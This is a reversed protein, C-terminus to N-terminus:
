QCKKNARVIADPLGRVQSDGLFYLRAVADFGFEHILETACAVNPQYSVRTSKPLGQEVLVADAIYQTVGENLAHYNVVLVKSSYSHIAEHLAEGFHATRPVHISDSGDRDYFGGISTDRDDASISAEKKAKAFAAADDVNFKTPLRLNRGRKGSIYPALLRSAEIMTQLLTALRLQGSPDAPVTDETGVRARRAASLGAASLQGRAQGIFHQKDAINQRTEEIFEWQARISALKAEVSQNAADVSDNIVRDRVSKWAALSSSLNDFPGHEQALSQQEARLENALDETKLFERETTALHKRADSLAGPLRKRDEALDAKLKILRPDEKVFFPDDREFLEEMIPELRAAMERNNNAIDDLVDQRALASELPEDPEKAQRRPVPPGNEQQVVHALEHALLRRGENSWPRYMNPGFVIHPGIAYAHANLAEASAGATADRHIRVKGLDRGLRPEMFMRVPDAMVEGKGPVTVTAPPDLPRKQLVADASIVARAVDDAEREAAGDEPSVEAKRQRGLPGEAPFLPLKGFRWAMPRRGTTGPVSVPERPPASPERNVFDMASTASKAPAKAAKAVFM